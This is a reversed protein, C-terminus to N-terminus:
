AVATSRARGKRVQAISGQKYAHHVLYGGALASLVGWAESRMADPAVFGFFFGLLVTLWTVVVFLPGWRDLTSDGVRPNVAAVMGSLLVLPFTARVDLPETDTSGVGM